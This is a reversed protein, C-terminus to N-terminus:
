YVFSLETGLKLTIYEEIIINTKVGGGGKREKKLVCMSVCV